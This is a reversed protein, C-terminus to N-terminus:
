RRARTRRNDTSPGVTTLKRAIRKAERGDVNGAIAVAPGADLMQAFAERVQDPRVARIRASVDASRRVRGSAFLDLAALELLRAPSERDAVSRVEIANRARELGVPDTHEVHSRLLRGVETFYEDLRAPTTSAEIVFQGYSDKV